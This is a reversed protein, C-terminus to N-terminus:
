SRVEIDSPADRCNVIWWSWTILYFFIKKHPKVRKLLCCKSHCVANYTWEGIQCFGQPNGLMSGGVLSKPVHHLQAVAVVLVDCWLKNGLAWWWWWVHFKDFTQVLLIWGFRGIVYREEKMRLNNCWWVRKFSLCWVFWCHNKRSPFQSGLFYNESSHLLNIQSPQRGQLCPM